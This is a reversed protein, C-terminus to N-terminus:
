CRTMAGSVRLACTMRTTPVTDRLKATPRARAQAQGARRLRHAVYEAAEATLYATLIGSGDAFRHFDATRRRAAREHDRLAGDQDLATAIHKAQRELTAPDHQRALDLLVSEVASHAEQLVCAPLRDVTKTVIDAARASVEGAVFAAATEAHLPPALEGTLMRRPLVAAALRVRAAADGASWRFAQRLFQVENKCGHMQALGRRHVQEVLEVLRVEAEHQVRVLEHMRALVQADTLSELSESVSVSVHEITGSGLFRLM